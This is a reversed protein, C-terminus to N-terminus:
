LYARARKRLPAALQEDSIKQLIVRSEAELDKAKTPDVEAQARLLLADILQMYGQYMREKASDKSKAEHYDRSLLDERSEFDHKVKNLLAIRKKCDTQSQLDVYELAAELYVPEADFTKQITLNKLAAAIKIRDPAPEEKRLMAAQLCASAGEKTRLNRSSAVIEDFLKTARDTMGKQVYVEALVLQASKDKRKQLLAIADDLRGLTLYVEALKCSQNDLTPDIECIKELVKRTREALQFQGDRDNLRAFDYEALWLLNQLDVAGGLAFAEYLHDAAKSEDKLAIYANFLAFHVQDLPILDAGDQLASTADLCFRSLDQEGDRYCFAALLRDNPTEKLLALAEKYVGLEYHTQALVRTWEVKTSEDLDRKLFEKLLAVLPERLQPSTKAMEAMSGVRYRVVFSTLEHEPYNKLFQVSSSQCSEWLKEKYDIQLIEFLADPSAGLSQLTDRAETLKGEQKLMQGKSFLLKAIDPHKPDIEQLRFIAWNLESLNGANYASDALSFVAAKFLEPDHTEELYPKLQAIAESYRKLNAYARGVFLRATSLKESSIGELANEGIVADYKGLEFVLALRNFAADEARKEGRKMLKEFSDIAQPKDYEAQVLAAQFLMEEELSPDEKAMDLYISVAKPFDKLIVCLHAYGQAVEGSLESKSLQDFLPIAKMAVAKLADPSATANLCQHYLAIALFYTVHLSEEKLLFAECEEALTAHWQMEYLCQMRNLFVKQQFEPSRIKAYHSLANSYNKERLALDGLAASVPDSFENEPYSAIFEEMQAKAIKYEGEQWFDAIRRLFLAEEESEAFSLLPSMLSLVLFFRMSGMIHGFRIIQGDSIM